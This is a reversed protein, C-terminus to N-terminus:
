EFGLSNRFNLSFKFISKFLEFLYYFFVVTVTSKTWLPVRGLRCLQRAWKPREAWPRLVLSNKEGMPTPPKGAFDPRHDATSHGPLLSPRHHVQNPTFPSSTSM